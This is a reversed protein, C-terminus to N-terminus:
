EKVVVGVDPIYQVPLGDDLEGPQWDYPGYSELNSLDSELWAIDQKEQLNNVAVSSQSKKSTKHRQALFDVFDLVEQVAPEPLHNLKDVINSIMDM